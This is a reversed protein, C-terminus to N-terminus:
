RANRGGRGPGASAAAGCAAVEQYCGVKVRDASLRATIAGDLLTSFVRGGKSPVDDALQTRLRCPTEGGRDVLFVRPIASAVSLLSRSGVWLEDNRGQDSFAMEHAAKQTVNSLLFAKENGRTLVLGLAEDNGRRSPGSRQPAGTLEITEGDRHLVEGPRLDRIRIQQRRALRLLDDEASSTPWFNLWLERPDFNKVVAAMGHLAGAAADNAVLINIRKLGRSWLYPSVIEEGPDWRGQYDTAEAWGSPNGCAGILLTTRDPLVALTAEGSGCDLATVELVGKSIQPRFPYWAVLTASVGFAVSAACFIRRHRDLAWAALLLSGAFALGVWLPPGPVRYALWSPWRPVKTLAFLVAVIGALVKAPWVALVPVTAALIVTPIATALLVTMVPIALANLAIGAFTIWHFLEAMPMLLGIQLAASFVTLELIWLAVRTPGVTAAQALAPHRDFFAFKESLRNRLRLLKQRLREPRDAVMGRFASDDLWVLAKRYPEVTRDLIPVVLGFILLAAAFSLQFGAEFLWAPRWVLLALAALGVANLGERERYLYRALLYAGIMLTARLTAARQEVLLAYAALFLTVGLYRWGERVRLWRLLALALAALLGVHLGAIVLLHYLGSRRFSEITKSDLASRDGLLVAKLVAGDRGESSWPPYLRDISALLRQRVRQVLRAGRSLGYGPLEKVDLPNKIDGEWGIDKVSELWWRYNFAGPNQYVRPRYFVVPAEIRNGAELHLAEAAVWARSTPPVQLRLQVKGSAAQLRTGRRVQTVWADFQFGSSTRLPSTAVTAITQIRNERGTKCAALNRLHDPPFRFPFLAAAVCGALVFGVTTLLSPLAVRGVRHALLGALLIGCAALLLWGAADLGLRISQALLIGGAWAAAIGLLPFRM